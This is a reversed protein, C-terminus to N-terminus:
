VFDSRYLTENKGNRKSVTLFETEKTKTWIKEVVAEVLERQACEKEGDMKRLLEPDYPLGLHLYINLIQRTADKDPRIVKVKRDIRGPRLVAPDIYDPRNSTLILVVNELSELGDLEACFQPVVTNSMSFHRGNSRTRLIAEAEDMFIFVLHGDKARERATRFIQRVMRETEGVWMNLIKPGSIAMFYEKVERGQQKSYEKTLNHATAKGILTKGCGPPGYLLIGKVPKKGFAEFLEPHLLPQEITEKILQIADVQGGVKDWGLEPVNELFYDRSEKKELHEIAIRGSPDLRVEDGSRINAEVLSEARFIIRQDTGPTDGGVRLRGDELIDAVTVMSGYTASPAIGVIAYAENLRVRVGLKLDDPEVNPDYTVVYETDGLLVLGLDGEPTSVWKLFVGIRNAPQTLKEYAARYQTLEERLNELQQSDAELSDKLAGVYAKLRPNDSPLQQEIRELMELTERPDSAM